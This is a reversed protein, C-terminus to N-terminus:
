VGDAAKCATPSHAGDRVRRPANLLRWCDRVRRETPKPWELVMETMEEVLSGAGGCFGVALLGAVMHEM